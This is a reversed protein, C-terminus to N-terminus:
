IYLFIFTSYFALFSLTLCDKKQGLGIVCCPNLINLMFCLKTRCIKMQVFVFYAARSPISNLQIILFFFFGKWGIRMWGIYALFLAYM